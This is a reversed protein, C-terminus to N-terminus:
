IYKKVVYKLLIQLPVTIKPTFFLLGIHVPPLELRYQYYM